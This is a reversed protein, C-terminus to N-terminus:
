NLNCSYIDINYLHKPNTVDDNLIHIIANSMNPPIACCMAPRAQWYGTGEGRRSQTCNLRRSEHGLAIIIELSNKAAYQPFWVIGYLIHVTPIKSKNFFLGQIKVRLWSNKTWKQLVLDAFTNANWKPLNM